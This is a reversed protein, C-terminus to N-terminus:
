ESSSKCWIIYDQLPELLAEEDINLQALTRNITYGQRERPAHETPICGESSVDPLCRAYITSLTGAIDAVYDEFRIVTTTHPRAEYWAKERLCYAVEVREAYAVLWSWPIAGNLNNDPAVRLFNILSRIRQAPHRVITLFHADPFRSELTDASALFHGKVLLVRPTGDESPGAHYLVKRGLQDIMDVMEGEWFPASDPTSSAWGLGEALVDPGLLMCLNVLQYSSYIIEFTDSKFPHFEHRQLFEPRLTKEFISRVKEESFLRGLTKPALKWLWLYPFAQQLFIPTVVQPHAELYHTMQTSGSRAGSIQFLPRVIPTQRYQPFLLEDAFWALGLLPGALVLIAINLLVRLRMSVTIAGHPAQATLAKSVYYRRLKPSVVMPPRSFNLRLPLYVLGCVISVPLLLMLMISLQVVHLLVQLAGGPRFEPEGELRDPIPSMTM